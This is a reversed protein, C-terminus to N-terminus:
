KPPPPCDSGKANQAGSIEIAPEGTPDVRTEDFWRPEVWSGDEKAKPQVLVQACGTLYEVRGMVVGRFGTVKEEVHAGLSMQSQDQEM